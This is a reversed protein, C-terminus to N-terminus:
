LQLRMIEHYADLLKNQFQVFLQLALAAKETAIIVEHFSEAEGTAVERSKQEAEKILANVDQWARSFIEKFPVDSTNGSGPKNSQDSTFTAIPYAIPGLPEPM